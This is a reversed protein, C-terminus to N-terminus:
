KFRQYKKVLRKLIHVKQEFKRFDTMKWTWNPDGITGPFNMRAKTNLGLIDQMPIIAYAADSELVYSIFQLAINQYDYHRQKLKRRIIKQKKQSQAQFWGMVTDNDHTGTYAITNIGTQYKHGTKESDFDFQMIKMGKFHYYDRLAEVGNTIDGLDEAVINLNPCRALLEDFFLYGPAKVWKGIEATECSAPIKWYTDFARFHDIRIIDFLKANYSIRNIWFKFNTQQLYDWNYIPNGWRQGHKAFYDPPVGAIFTPHYTEDLLFAQSNEYVDVSDFGVYFPIDGMIEIDLSNAYEKLQLWQCYLIYQKFIEFEIAEQHSTLDYKQNNIWSIQELPWLNWPKFNNLRKFCMFVAYNYVWKQKAFLQYNEDKVFNNFAEKLYVSKYKRVADYDVESQFQRFLTPKSILKAEYLFDLSIYLDDMAKSSYPQYPSNGYGLPNLPLIQWIKIKATKLDDIFRYAEQGFDGIGYKSPLSSVALLIGSKRM